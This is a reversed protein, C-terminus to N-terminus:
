GDEKNYLRWIEQLITGEEIDNRTSKTFDANRSKLIQRIKFIDFKYIYSLHIKFFTTQATYM